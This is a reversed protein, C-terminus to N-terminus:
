FGDRMVRVWRPMPRRVHVFAALKNRRQARTNHRTTIWLMEPTVVPRRRWLTREHTRMEAPDCGTRFCRRSRCILISTMIGSSPHNENAFASECMFVFVLIDVTYQASVRRFLQQLNTGHETNLPWRDEDDDDIQGVDMRMRLSSASSASSASSVTTPRRDYIKAMSPMRQAAATEHVGHQTGCSLTRSYYLSVSLYRHRAARPRHDVPMYNLSLLAGGGNGNGTTCIRKTTVQINQIGIVRYVCTIREQARKERHWDRVANHASNTTYTRQWFPVDSVLVVWWQRRQRTRKTRENTCTFAHTRTHTYTVRQEASQAAHRM